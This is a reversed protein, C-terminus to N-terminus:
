EVKVMFCVQYHLMVIHLIFGGDDIAIDKLPISPLSTIVLQSEPIFELDIKNQYCVSGSFAKVYGSFRNYVNDKGTKFYLKSMPVENNSIYRSALKMDYSIEDVLEKFLLKSTRNIYDNHSIAYARLFIFKELWNKILGFLGPPLKFEM